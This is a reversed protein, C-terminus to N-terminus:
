NLDNQDVAIAFPFIRLIAKLVKLTKCCRKLETDATGHSTTVSILLM